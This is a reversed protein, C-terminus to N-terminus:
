PRNLPLCAGFERLSWKGDPEVLLYRSEEVRGACRPHFRFAINDLWHSTKQDPFSEIVLARPDENSFHVQVIAAGDPRRGLVQYVPEGAFRAERWLPLVFFKLNLDMEETPPIGDGFVRLELSRDKGAGKWAALWAHKAIRESAEGHVRLFTSWDFKPRGKIAPDWWRAYDLLTPNTARARVVLANSAVTADLISFSEQAQGYRLLRKATEIERREEKSPGKLRAFDRPVAHEASDRAEILKLELEIIAAAYADNFGPDGRIAAFRSKAADFRQLRRELEGSVLQATLRDEPDLKVRSLVRAYAGLAESAIRPYDEGAEWTAQLLTWAVREPSEGMHQQLKAAVYYASKELRLQQFASSAVFSRLKELEKDTFRSKYIVFGNSPCRALPAPAATPGSPKLDLYIGFQTGSMAARMRFVTGDLPCKLEVDGYTLGWCPEAFVCAAALAVLLRM